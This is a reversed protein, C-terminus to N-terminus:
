LAQGPQSPNRVFEVKGEAASTPHGDEQSDRQEGLTPRAARQAAGGEDVM